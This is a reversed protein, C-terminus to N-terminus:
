RATLDSYLRTFDAAARELSFNGVIRRRAAECRARWSEGHEGLLRRIAEALAAPDGPPCVVGTDGLILRADGVDTAVAPLGAAMGEALANCFGEGYASSSVVIDAAALLAPVDDRQGLATVNVPRGALRDTGRGVLMARAEPVGRMAAFFGAHDKMADVRAVHAILRADAPLGMDRRLRARAQADPRFRQTDIGNAIVARARPHAGLAEHAKLGADSNAILMDVGRSLWVWLRRTARFVPGYEAGAMLSCRLGWVLKTRRRRGSLRLGTAAALDGHYMWGQVIDPREAAIRRALAVLGGPGPVGRRMDLSHVPVGAARLLGAYRGGPLLSVVSQELASAGPATALAHLMGEAGGVDLDTIVHMVKIRAATM